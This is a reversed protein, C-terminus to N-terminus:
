DQFPPQLESLSVGAGSFLQYRPLTMDDPFQRDSRLRQALSLAQKPEKFVEMSKAHIVFTPGSLLKGGEHKPSPLRLLDDSKLAAGASKSPM